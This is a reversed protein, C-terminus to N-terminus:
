WQMVMGSMSVAAAAAGVVVVLQQVLIMHHNQPLFFKMLVIRDQVLNQSMQRECVIGGMAEIQM